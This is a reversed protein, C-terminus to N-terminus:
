RRNRLAAAFAAARERCGVVPAIGAGPSLAAGRDIAPVAADLEPGGAEGTLAVRIPHFLGKAKQGTRLKLTAIVARFTDRDLRPARALEDALAEIVAGAGAHALVEQVDARGLSEHPDFAFVFRLRSPVQDLRDVSGVATAVISALYGRGAEDPNTAFGDRQFYPLSLAAVRDPDALRLYHRDVWALKGEDFVGSSHGVAEISFRRALEDIPLIEEDGGPSWGILALYNVLAEPLYGKERFEAVSTAGHRKSLPTHDPGMVLALHAFVPPAFGLAEYLLVQRPTNSIHDEGRVVHTVKMLADDVVVAFNYAPHQDSRLLVPDGIVSTHFRVEGRVRDEFVVDRDAPVRLRVVAREGADLRRRAQERGIARCTGAYRPPLGSALAAQREAELTDAPCFCHYARDAAILENAYSRYLHLRESQRYPGHAGGVDPGEDWQLGLWRLDELIAAESERTSRQVDTDEIRLIFTGGAGRAMLWNFLATRANGVHLHGTPSPAFRVRM